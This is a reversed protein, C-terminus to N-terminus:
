IKIIYNFTQYPNMVSQVTSLQNNSGRDSAGGTTGQWYRGTGSTPSLDDGSSVGLAFPHTHDNITHSHQLNVTEVGTASGLNDAEAATVRNASAGGMNDKGLPFRGRLDPLNFTTSNDGVGYQTGCVAFLAIYTTRSIASGDCLLWGGPATTGPYPMTAGVPVMGAGSQNQNTDYSSARGTSQQVAIYKKNEANERAISTNLQEIELTVSDPTYQIGLIQMNDTFTQSTINNFGIFKCTDGPQISEIDYGSNDGNNDLIEISIKVVADKNADLETEGMRDATGPLSVRGDTKIEWRDDFDNISDEDAFLKLIQVDSNDGNSFLVNNVVSEMNKEVKIAKFDKGFTFTHTAKTPKSKFQLINDAGIYWWWSPPAIERCKDVADSYMIGNFIYAASAGTNEISTASYNVIPNRAEIRYHDIISRVIGSLEPALGASHGTKLTSNTDTTLEIYDGIKLLSTAIKSVYGLCKITVGENNQDIFPQYNSIFGSYIKLGDTGTDDDNVWLEIRNNLKIIYNEDFDDFKKPISFSLEGLGGNIQKRFGTFSIEKMTDIYHGNAQYIKAFYSKM